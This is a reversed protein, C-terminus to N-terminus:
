PSPASACTSGRVLRPPIAIRKPKSFPRSMQRALERVAARGIEEVDFTVAALQGIAVPAGIAMVSVDRPVTRGSTRVGEVVGGAIVESDCIIATPPDALSMLHGAAEISDSVLSSTEAVLDERADLSLEKLGRQYGRFRYESVTRHRSWLVYSITRHGLEGALFRVAERVGLEDDAVVCGLEASPMDVLVVPAGLSPMAKIEDEHFALMLAGKLEQSTMARRLGEAPEAQPDLHAMLLDLGSDAAEWLVGDVIGRYYAGLDVPALGHFLAITERPGSRQRAAHVFTGRGHVREIVGRDELKQLASRLATRSVKLEDCLVREAPLRGDPFGGEAVRKAISDAIWQAVPGSTM